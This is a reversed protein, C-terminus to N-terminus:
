RYGLKKLLEINNKKFVEDTGAIDLGAALAVMKQQGTRYLDKHSHADSNILFKAGAMCGTKVVHGNSLCHGTRHTIELFINNEAAKKAEKVTIFGPHALIDIYRSNVAASNTGAEVPEVVSEGHVVVIRAGSERAYRAMGDISKAPINTLEVGPIAIIDWYKGALECDKIAGKIVEDLNSYSAHDTIAICDYGYSDACRILEIPSNAGDSFFTHTHFDFIM